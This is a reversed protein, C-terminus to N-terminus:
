GFSNDLHCPHSRSSITPILLLFLSISPSLPSLILPLSSFLLSFFVVKIILFALSSIPTGIALIQLLLTSGKATKKPSFLTSVNAYFSITALARLLSILVVDFLSSKFSYNMISSVLYGGEEGGGTISSSSSANPYGAALWLASISLFDVVSLLAARRFYTKKNQENSNKSNEDEEEGYDGTATSSSLLRVEEEKDKTRKQQISM